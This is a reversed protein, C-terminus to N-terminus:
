QTSSPSRSSEKAAGEGGPRELDHGNVTCDIVEADEEFEQLLKRITSPPADETSKSNEIPMELVVKELDSKWECVLIRDLEGALFWFVSLRISPGLFHNIRLDTNKCFTRNKFSVLRSALDTDKKSLAHSHTM